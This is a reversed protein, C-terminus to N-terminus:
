AHSRGDLLQATVVLTQWPGPTVTGPHSDAPRRSHRRVPGPPRSGGAPGSNRWGDAPLEEHGPLARRGRRSDVHDHPAAPRKGPQCLAHPTGRAGWALGGAAIEHLQDGVQVTMVGDIVFFMEDERTHVHLNPGATFPPLQVEALTALGGTQGSAFRFFPRELPPADAHKEGPALIFPVSVAGGATLAAAAWTRADVGIGRGKPGLANHWVIRGRARASRLGAVAALPAGGARRFGLVACPVRNPDAAQYALCSSHQQGQRQFSDVPGSNMSFTRSTTPRDM